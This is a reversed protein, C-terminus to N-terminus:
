FALSGSGEDQFRFSDNRCAVVAHPYESILYIQYSGTAKGVNYLTGPYFNQLSSSWAAGSEVEYSRSMANDFFSIGAM